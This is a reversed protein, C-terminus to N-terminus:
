SFPVSVFVQPQDWSLVVEVFVATFGLADVELVVRAGEAFELVAQGAGNLLFGIQADAFVFSDLFVLGNQDSFFWQDPIINAYGMGAGDVEAEVVRVAVNEWVFNTTPDYIELEIAVPRDEAALVVTTDERHHCAGLTLLLLGLLKAKM